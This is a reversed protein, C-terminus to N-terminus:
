SRSTVHPWVAIDVQQNIKEWVRVNSQYLM